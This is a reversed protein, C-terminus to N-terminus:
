LIFVPPGRRKLATLARLRLTSATHQWDATINSVTTCLIRAAPLTAAVFTNDDTIHHRINKAVSANIIFKHLQHVRCSGRDSEQHSHNEETEAEIDCDAGHQCQEFTVCVRDYHHHHMVVTSLLMMFTAMWTCLISLRNTMVTAFNSLVLHLQTAFIM